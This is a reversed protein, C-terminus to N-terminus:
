VAHVPFRDSGYGRGYLDYQYIWHRCADTLAYGAPLYYLNRSCYMRDHSGTKRRGPKCIYRSNRRRLLTYTGGMKEFTSKM